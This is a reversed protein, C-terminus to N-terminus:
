QSTHVRVSCQVCSILLSTGDEELYPTVPQEQIEADEETTITFCMEPILPKTRMWGGAGMFPSDVVNACETQLFSLMITLSVEQEAM